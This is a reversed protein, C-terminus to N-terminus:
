NLWHWRPLRWFEAWSWNIKMRLLPWACFSHLKRISLKNFLMHINFLVNGNGLPGKGECYLVSNGDEQVTCSALCGIWNPGCRSCDCCGAESAERVVSEFGEGSIEFCFIFGNEFCFLFLCIALVSDRISNFETFNNTVYLSRRLPLLRLREVENLLRRFWVCYCNCM